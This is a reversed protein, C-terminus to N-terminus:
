SLGLDHFHACFNDNFSKSLLFSIIMPLDIRLAKKEHADIM